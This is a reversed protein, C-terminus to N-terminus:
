LATLVYYVQRSGTVDTMQDNKSPIIWFTNKWSLRMRLGSDDIIPLPPPPFGYYRYPIYAVSPTCFALFTKPDM